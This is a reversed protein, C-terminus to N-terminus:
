ITGTYREVRKAVYAMAKVPAVALQADHDTLLAAFLQYADDGFRFPGDTDCTMADTAAIEYDEVSRLSGPGYGLRQLVAAALAVRMLLQLSYLTGRGARLVELQIHHDLSLRDRISAPLPLLETKNARQRTQSQRLRTTWNQM